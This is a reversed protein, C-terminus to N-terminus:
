MYGNFLNGTAFNGSYNGAFNYTDQKNAESTAYFNLISSKASVSYAFGGTTNFLNELKQMDAAKFAKEDVSLTKDDNVTIGVKSLMKEYTETTGTMSNLGNAIKSTAANEASSVLANYDKVFADVAKYIKETDYGTTKVEKGTEDKTM